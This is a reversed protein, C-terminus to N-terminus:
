VTCLVRPHPHLTPMHTPPPPLAHRASVCGGIRIATPWGPFFAHFQESTYGHAAIHHYYFGDWNALPALVRIVAAEVWGAAGLGERERMIRSLLAQSSDYPSGALWVVAVVWVFVAARVCAAWKVARWAGDTTNRSGM